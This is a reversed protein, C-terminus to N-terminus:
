EEENEFELLANSNKMCIFSDGNILKNGCDNCFRITLNTMM